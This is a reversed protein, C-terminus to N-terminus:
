ISVMYLQFVLKGKFRDSAHLATHVQLWSLYLLFPQASSQKELYRIGENSLRESMHDDLNVPQEVIEGNRMLTSNWIHLTSLILISLTVFTVFIFAMIISLCQGLFRKIIFISVLMVLGTLCLRKVVDPRFALVINSDKGMNRFNTLPIGFFYDFGHNNPHHCHDGYSKCSVGQHWKGLLYFICSHFTETLKGYTITM